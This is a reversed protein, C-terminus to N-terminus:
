CVLRKEDFHGFPPEREGLAGLLRLISLEFWNLVETPQPKQLSPPEQTRSSMEHNRCNDKM